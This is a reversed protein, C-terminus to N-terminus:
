PRWLLFIGLGFFLIAMLIKIALLHKKFLKSFQESTVGWLAFIFIILLPVIFMLNYLLLYGLAALKLPTTKLVFTITPLYVQGTCIAELISILIGTTLASSALKFIPPKSINAGNRRYHLGIISHIQVKIAKPLQLLLGETEQTKKFKFFDYLAFIGLIISFVGVSFNLIKSILWFGKLRYFFGFLGMGILLYTIFVAFIFVLGIITLEKKKYGQLSLFSIFFVIVTFACPNIGDTLGAMIIALPQFTKFHAILDIAPLNEKDELNNKNLSKAILKKLNDRVRGEANLFNGEFYFVPWTNKIKAKYKEELSLLLKYNEIVSIDLYEVLLRGEFEREIQPMLENKVQMCRHCSPSSFVTLKPLENDAYTQAYAFIFFALFILFSTSVVKRIYM